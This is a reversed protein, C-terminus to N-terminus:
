RAAGLILARTWCEACGLEGIDGLASEEAYTGQRVHCATLSRVLHMDKEAGHDAGPYDSAIRALATKTPKFLVTGGIYRAM